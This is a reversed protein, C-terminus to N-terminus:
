ERATAAAEVCWTLSAATLLRPCRPRQDATWEKTTLRPSLLRVPLLQLDIKNLRMHVINFISFSFARIKFIDVMDRSVLKDSM